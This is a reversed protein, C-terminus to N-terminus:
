RPATQYATLARRGTTNRNLKQKLIRQAGQLLAMRRSLLVGLVKARDKVETWRPGREATAVSRKFEEHWEAIAQANPHEVPTRLLFALRDLVQLVDHDSM